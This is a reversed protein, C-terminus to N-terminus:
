NSDAAIRIYHDTFVLAPHLQARPMHCEICNGKQRADVHAPNTTHCSLCKGNYYGPDNRRVDQHAAHCTLCGINGSEFCRSKMLRLPQFRVNDPDTEQGPSVVRHCNGCFRVQAGVNLKGPDFPRERPDSAHENAGPHSRVCQIGPLVPDLDRTIVTAHCSLCSKLSTQNQHLGLAAQPNTSAGPEQGITVGYQQLRTFYSVRSELVGTGTRVLPTQGQEGAGIVWEVMGEARLNGKMAIVRVGGPARRYVFSYGGASEHLPLDVPLHEVFASGSAPVMAIAHRTGAHAQAEAPHCTACDPPPASWAAVGFSSLAFIIRILKSM